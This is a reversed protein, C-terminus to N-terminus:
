REAFLQRWLDSIGQAVYPSVNLKEEFYNPAVYEKPFHFCGFRLVGLMVRGGPNGSNLQTCQHFTDSIFLDLVIQQDWSYSFTINAHHLLLVKLSLIDRETEVIM